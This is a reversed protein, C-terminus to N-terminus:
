AFRLGTMFMFLIMMYLYGICAMKLIFYEKAANKEKNALTQLLMATVPLIMVIALATNAWFLTISVNLLILAAVAAAAVATLIWLINRATKM